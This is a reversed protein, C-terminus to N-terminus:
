AEGPRGANRRRKIAYALALSPVALALAYWQFAILRHKTANTDPADWDRALGDEAPSTQLILVPQLEIQAWDRFREITLNEWVTGERHAASLEIFRESPKRATGTIELAGSPTTVRPLESRLRPAAVWGRNVLVHMAVGDLRLPTVVHYGAVGRRMKNDILVTKEPV